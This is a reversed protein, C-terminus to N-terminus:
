NKKIKQNLEYDVINNYKFIWSISFSHIHLHNNYQNNHQNNYQNNNNPNHNNLNIGSCSELICNFLNYIVSSHSIIIYLTDQDFKKIKKNFYKSMKEKNKKNPDRDVMDNIKPDYIKIKKFKNNLIDSKIKSSIVLSTMLTRDQNSSIFKIKKINEYKDIHEKIKNIFLTAYDFSDEYDIKENKNSDYFTKFHRILIINLNKGM